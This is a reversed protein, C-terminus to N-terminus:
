KFTGAWILWLQGPTTKPRYSKCVVAATGLTREAAERIKPSECGTVMIWTAPRKVKLVSGGGALDSALRCDDLTNQPNEPLGEVVIVDWPTERVWVALDRALGGEYSIQHAIGGQDSLLDDVQEVATLDRDLYVFQPASAPGNLRERAAYFMLPAHSWGGIALARAPALNRLIDKVYLYQAVNHQGVTVAFDYATNLDKAVPRM